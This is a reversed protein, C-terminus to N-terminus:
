LKLDSGWHTEDSDITIMKRKRPLYHLGAKMKLVRTSHLQDETKEKEKM